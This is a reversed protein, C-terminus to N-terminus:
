FATVWRGKRLPSWVAVLRIDPHWFGIAAREKHWYLAIFSQLSATRLVQETTIGRQRLKDAFDRAWKQQKLDERAAKVIAAVVREDWM